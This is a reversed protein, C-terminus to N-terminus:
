GSLKALLRSEGCQGGFFGTLLSTIWGSTKLNSKESSSIFSKFPPPPISSRYSGPYAPPTLPRLLLAISGIKSSLPPAPPYPFGFKMVFSTLRGIHAVLPALPEVIFIWSSNFNNASTPSTPRGFTPFLLRNLHIVPLLACTPFQAKVVKLGFIPVTTNSPPNPVPSTKAPNVSSSAPLSLNVTASIGPSTLSAPSFLPSPHSKKLCTSRALPNTNTTSKPKSGTLCTSPNHRSISSYSFILSTSLRCAASSSCLSLSSSLNLRSSSFSSVPIIILKVSSASNFLNTISFPITSFGHITTPFLASRSPASFRNM